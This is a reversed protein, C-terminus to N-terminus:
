GRLWRVARSTRIDHWLRWYWPKSQYYELWWRGMRYSVERLTPTFRDRLVVTMEIVAENMKALHEETTV